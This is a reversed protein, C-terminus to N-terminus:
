NTVNEVLLSRFFRYCDRIVKKLTESQSSGSAAAVGADRTVPRNNNSSSSLVTSTDCSISRHWAFVSRQTQYTVQWGREFTSFTSNWSAPVTTVSIPTWAMEHVGGFGCFANVSVLVYCWTWWWWWIWYTSGIIIVVEFVMAAELMVMELVIVLTPLIM